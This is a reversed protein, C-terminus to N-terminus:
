SSAIGFFLFKKPKRKGAVKPTLDICGAPGTVDNLGDVCADELLMEAIDRPTTKQGCSNRAERWRKALYRLSKLTGHKSKPERLERSWVALEIEELKKVVYTGDFEDAPKENVEAILEQVENVGDSYLAKLSRWNDHVQIFGTKTALGGYIDISTAEAIARQFAENADRGEAEIFFEVEAM